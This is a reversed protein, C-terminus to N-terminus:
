VDVQGGKEKELVRSVEKSKTKDIEPTFFACFISIAGFALTTLMVDRYALANAKQYAVTAEDLIKPTLAMVDEQSGQGKLLAILNAISGSPLGSRSAAKSVLDPITKSLRSTLVANYIVSGLASLGARMTTAVGGGVGIDAQDKLAVTCFVGSVAEQVGLSLFATIILGLATSLNNANSCATAALTATGVSTSLILLIKKNDVWNAVFSGAIQGIILTLGTTVSLWGYNDGTAKEPWLAVLMKPWIIALAYYQCAGVGLCVTM